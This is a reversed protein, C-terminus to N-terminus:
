CCRLASNAIEVALRAVNCAIAWCLPLLPLRIGAAPLSWLTSATAALALSSVGGACEYLWRVVGLPADADWNSGGKGLCWSDTKRSGM